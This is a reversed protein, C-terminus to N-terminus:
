DAKNDNGYQLKRLPIPVSIGAKSLEKHANLAIESKTKLSASFEVWCYITFDFSSSGYGDFLVLPVPQDKTEPHDKAVASLITIVKEPEADFSTSVNITLRRKEDTLTWNNVKNSILQGNPVILESGDWTMIKCARVGIDTVRGMFEDVEIVDGVHIPQEVALILGAILNLVINQLGFGIGVGLAGAMFGFKNMNIGLSVMALYVGFVVLIYRIAMSIADATGRPLSSKNVWEDKFFNKIFRVLIFTVFVILAFSFIDGISISFTGFTIALGMISNILDLFPKFLMFYILTVLFWLIFASWNILPRIRTDILKKLQEYLPISQAHKGKILLILMSNLIIVVTVLITTFILTRNTASILFNSLKVSGFINAIVAIIM